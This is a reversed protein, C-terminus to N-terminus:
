FHALRSEMPRLASLEKKAETLEIRLTEVLELTTKTWHQELEADVKRDVGHRNDRSRMAQLWGKGVWGLAGAIVTTLITETIIM